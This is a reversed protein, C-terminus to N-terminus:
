TQGGKAKQKRASVDARAQAAEESIRAVLRGKVRLDISVIDKDLVHAEQQLQALLTVAAQPDAEPLAVEVGNTMKLTWRRQAVLIGARIRWRLEGAADLLSVYEDLRENAGEGVVLPLEAFRPDRLMDIPIGDAAVIHVEGDKQWLAFPRREDIEILLRNPYLKSVSAEKVLPMAALRDRVRSADLFLLSRHPGIEAADLIENASLEREGSITVAALGFGLARAVVDRLAGQDAVFAAYQGGVVSGYAAVSAFFALTLISGFGPKAFYDSFRVLLSRRRSPKRARVGERPRLRAPESSTVTPVGAFASFSPRIDVIVEKVPRLLRRGGDM